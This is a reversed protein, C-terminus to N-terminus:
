YPYLLTDNLMCDANRQHGITDMMNEHIEKSDMHRKQHFTQELIKGM